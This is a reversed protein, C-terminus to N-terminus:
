DHPQAAQPGPRANGAGPSSASAGQGPDPGARGPKKMLGALLALVLGEAAKLVAPRLWQHMLPALVPRLWPGLLALVGAAGAVPGSARAAHSRVRHERAASSDGPRRDGRRWLLGLLCGGVAGLALPWLWARPALVQGVAQEVENWAGLLTRRRQLMRLEVDLIQQELATEPSPARPSSPKTSSSM